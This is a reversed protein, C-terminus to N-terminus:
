RSEDSYGKYVVIDSAKRIIHTDTGKLRHSIQVRCQPMDTFIRQIRGSRLNNTNFGKSVVYIALDNVEISQGLSDISISLTM